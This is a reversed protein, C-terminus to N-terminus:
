LLHGNIGLCISKSKCVLTISFIPKHHDHNPLELGVAIGLIGMQLAFMFHYIRAESQTTNKYLKISM